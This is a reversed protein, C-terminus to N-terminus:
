LLAVRIRSDVGLKQLVAQVQMKVTPLSKHLRHAIAKNSLGERMLLAVERERPSLRAFAEPCRKANGVDYPSSSWALDAAAFRLAFVHETLHPLNPILEFRLTEVQKDLRCISVLEETSLHNTPGDDQPGRTCREIARAVKSPLTLTASHEDRLLAHAHARRRATPSAYLIRLTDDFILAPGASAEAVTALAALAIRQRTSNRLRVIVAELINRLERLANWECSTFQPQAASRRLCIYGACDDPAWFYIEADKDWGEHCMYDRFFPQGKLRQAGGLQISTSSLRVGSHRSVFAATPDVRHRATFYRYREEARGDAIRLTDYTLDERFEDSTNLCVRLSHLPLLSQMVREFRESFQNLSDVTLLSYLSRQFHSPCIDSLLSPSVTQSGSLAM